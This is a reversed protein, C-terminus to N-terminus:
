QGPYTDSHQSERLHPLQARTWRVLAGAVHSRQKSGEARTVTSLKSRLNENQM